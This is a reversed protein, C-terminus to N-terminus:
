RVSWSVKGLMGKNSTYSLQLSDILDQIDKSLFNNMIEMREHYAMSSAQFLISLERSSNKSSLASRGRVIDTNIDMDMTFPLQAM